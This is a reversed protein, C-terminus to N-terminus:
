IRTSVGLYKAEQAGRGAKPSFLSFVPFMRKDMLYSIILLVAPWVLTGMEDASSYYCMVSFVIKSSQMCYM